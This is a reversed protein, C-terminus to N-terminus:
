RTLWADPKARDKLYDLLFARRSEAWKRLHRASAGGRGGGSESAEPLEESTVSVFDEFSSLKRTDREVEKRILSRLGAVKPGLNKWDLQDAIVRMNALYQDRFEPVALIKSRLPKQDDDMGILPDLGRSAPAEGGRGGRGGRRRGGVERFSENMDHPFFHFKGKADLYISYDSARVWYGDSNCLANDYALFWLLEDIDVKDALAAKLDGAPVEDLVRC